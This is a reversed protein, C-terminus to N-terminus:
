PGLPQATIRFPENGLFVRGYFFFSNKEDGKTPPNEKEKQVKVMKKGSMGAGCHSGANGCLLRVYPVHKM